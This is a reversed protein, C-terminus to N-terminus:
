RIGKFKLNSNNGIKRLEEAQKISDFALAAEGRTVGNSVEYGAKKLVWIQKDSAPLNTIYESAQGKTFTNNIIDHGEEALWKLQAPTAAERMRWSDSIKVKPLQLLNIRVDAKLTHQLEARKKEAQELLIKRKEETIFVKDKIDKGKDLTWTNILQHRSTNDVIDLVIADKYSKKLRTIRGVAQLYSTLSKTPRAMICCSAEPHDFGAVLVNVNNIVLFKGSKFDAIREKRNPCIKEDGVVFTTSINNDLFKQYVNQCHEVDVCFVIAQRGSAYKVYSDVILQNRVSNDIIRLDKSNLEGATTRVSDLSIETKIRIANIECLYGNDIGFKIDREFVIEDFLNGLSMGDARFPTATLGLLLKPTFYNVFKQWSQAMALHAEDIVICDFYDSPILHLRRHLTQVSAITIDKSIDFQEAKVIGLTKYGLLNDASEIQQLAEGSQDCLEQTHTCWLVKKFDKIINCTLFTKGGGTMLVLLQKSIGDSLKKHVVDYAEQQYPRLTHNM